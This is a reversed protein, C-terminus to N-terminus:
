KEKFSHELVYDIVKANKETRIQQLRDRMKKNETKYDFPPLPETVIFPYNCVRLYVSHLFRENRFGPMLYGELDSLVNVVTETNNYFYRRLLETINESNYVAIYQYLMCYLRVVGKLNSKEYEEIKDIFYETVLDNTKLNNFDKEATNVKIEELLKNVAKEVSDFTNLPGYNEKIYADVDIQEEDQPENDKRACAYLEVICVVIMIIFIMRAKM